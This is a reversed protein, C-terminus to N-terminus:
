ALKFAWQRVRASDLVGECLAVFITAAILDATTGPNRRHGDARLWHDLGALDADGRDPWGAELVAAARQASETAIGPGCKRLILTDPRAAMLRLHAGIIAREIGAARFDRLASLGTEFVDEFGTVFQRAVDDRDAALRMAELLTVTPEDSVDQQEATGLGGPMALRIARYAWRADDVSLAELRRALAPRLADGQGVAAACPALLLCIGLNANTAVSQRTARVSEYVAKGVGLEAAEALRPAVADAARLFDDADLDNFSAEPHVNGPKRALVEAQCALRILAELQESM